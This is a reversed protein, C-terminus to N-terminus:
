FDNGTSDRGSLDLFKGVNKLSLIFRYDRDAQIESAFGAATRVRQESRFERLELTFSYCQSTYAFGYRQQLLEGKKLDFVLKPSIVLRKPVVNFAGGLIGQHERTSGDAINLRNEWTLDLHHGGRLDFTGTLSRRDLLNALTDYSLRTELFFSQGSKVRVLATIPGEKSTLTEGDKVLRQLPQEDDFSFLQEVSVRLIEESSASAAKRKAPAPPAGEAASEPKKEEREKPKAKVYNVLAVRGIKSAQFPVDVEDFQATRAADLVDVDGQFTYGLQPEIIHKFKSWRGLPRDFVRSFRPGLLEASATPVSRTLTEGLFERSAGACIEDGVDNPGTSFRCVSDGWWTFREGVTVTTSLWPIKTAQVKLKPFLDFRGYNSSYSGDGSDFPREQSLYSASSNLSFYLPLSAIQTERVDYDITPLQRLTVVREIDNAVDQDVLTERSDLNINVSQPGWNGSLSGLSYISRISNRSVDREFDRLYDFDSYDRLLLIGRMGFPLRDSVHDLSVKWRTEDREPDQIAYADLHGRSGEVPAWRLEAGGGLFNSGGSDAPQALPTVSKSFLDAFFTVDWSRGLTQFYGISLSAGRDRSYGPQPVLFGSARETLAPWVLYPLYFMPAKKVRMSAGHIRAYGELEISARKARFSWDPVPDGQCSTFVGDEITYLNDSVKALVAGSITVEPELNATANEFRGTKKELDYTAASATIRQPGQDLIVDGEATVVRTKLDASVRQARLTLDKYKLEVDGSLVAFNDRQLDLQCAKGTAVGGGQDEPFPLQLETPSECSPLDIPPAPMPQEPVPQEPVPQAAVVSSAFLWAVAIAWVLSGALSSSRRSVGM